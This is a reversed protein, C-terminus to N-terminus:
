TGVVRDATGPWGSASTSGVSGASVAAFTPPMRATSSTTAVPATLAANLQESWKEDTKTLGWVRNSTLCLDRLATRFPKRPM